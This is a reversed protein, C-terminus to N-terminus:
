FEKYVDKFTLSEPSTLFRNYKALYTSNSNLQGRLQGM